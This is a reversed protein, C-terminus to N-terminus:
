KGKLNFVQFLTQHNSKKKDQYIYMELLNLKIPKKLYEGRIITDYNETGMMNLSVSCYLKDLMNKCIFQEFNM